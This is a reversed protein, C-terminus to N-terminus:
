LVLLLNEGKQSSTIERKTQIYQIQPHPRNETVDYYKLKTTRPINFM